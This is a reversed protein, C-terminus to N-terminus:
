PWLLLIRSRLLKSAFSEERLCCAQISNSSESLKFSSPSLSLLGKLLATGNGMDRVFDPFATTASGGSSTISCTCSPNIASLIILVLLEALRSSEVGWLHCDRYLINLSHLCAVVTESARCISSFSSLAMLSSCIIFNRAAIM